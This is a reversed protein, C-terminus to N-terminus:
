RKSQWAYYQPHFKGKEKIFNYSAAINEVKENLNFIKDNESKSGIWIVRPFKINPFSGLGCFKIEFKGFNSMDNRIDETMEKLISEEIDGLFKLTIHFKASSEWKIESDIERLTRQVEFIKNKNEDSTDIAFFARIKGM